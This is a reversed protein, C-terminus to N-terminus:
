TDVAPYPPCTTSPPWSGPSHWRRSSEWRFHQAAFEVEQCHSDLLPANLERTLDTFSKADMLSKFDAAFVRGRLPSLAIRAPIALEEESEVESFSLPRRSENSV